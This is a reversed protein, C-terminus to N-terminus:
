QVVLPDAPEMRLDLLVAPPDYQGIEVARVARPDVSLRNLHAHKLRAILEADATAQQEVSAPLLDRIAHPRKCRTRRAKRVIRRIAGAQIRRALFERQFILWKRRFRRK